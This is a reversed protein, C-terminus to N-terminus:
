GCTAQAEQPVELALKQIRTARVKLKSQKRGDKEWQEFQLQGVISVQDGKELRKEAIEATQDWAVIDVFHFRTEWEGDKTRKAEPIGIGFSGFKVGSKLDKCSPTITVKGILCVQNMTNM